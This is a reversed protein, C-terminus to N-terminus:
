LFSMFSKLHKEIAHQYSDRWDFTETCLNCINTKSNFIEWWRENGKNKALQQMLDDVEYFKEYTSKM